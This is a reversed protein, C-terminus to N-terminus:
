YFFGLGFFLEYELDDFDKTEFYTKLSEANFGLSARVPYNSHNNIIGIGEIGVAYLWQSSRGEAALYAIDVFPIAYTRAWSGLNICKTTLNINAVAITNWSETNYPNDNRIGRMYHAITISSDEDYYDDFLDRTAVKSIIGTIRISPNLWSTAFPFLSFSLTGYQSTEHLLSEFPMTRSYYFSFSVGKRFDQNGDIDKNIGSRGFTAGLILEKIVTWDEINYGNPGYTSRLVVTPTFNFDMPLSFPISISEKKIVDIFGDTKTETTTYLYISLDITRDKLKFGYYSLLYSTETKELLPDYNLGHSLSFGGLSELLHELTASYSFNSVGFSELENRSPNFKIETSFKFTVTKGLKINYLSTGLALTTGKLLSHKSGEYLISITTDMNFNAVPFETLSFDLSYNATEFSNSTQEMLFKTTFQALKGAFNKSDMKLGLSLGTNSDYKPVPFIFMSNKDNIQFVATFHKEENKSSDLKLITSDTSNFVNWNAIEQELAKVHEELEEYTEFSTYDKLGLRSYVISLDTKDEFIFNYNDITYTTAFLCAVLALLIVVLAFRKM